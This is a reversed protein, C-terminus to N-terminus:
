STGSPSARIEPVEVVRVGDPPREVAGALTAVVQALTNLGLRRAGERTWPLREAVFYAPVLVLPWWHGEGLVYWPRVFTAAM